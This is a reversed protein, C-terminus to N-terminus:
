NGRPPTQTQLSRMDAPLDQWATRYAHECHNRQGLLGFFWDILPRARGYFLGNIEARYAASSFSEGPHARGVTFVMYLWCDTSYVLNFVRSPISAWFSILLLLWLWSIFRQLKTM